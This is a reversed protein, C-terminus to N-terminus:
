AVRRKVTFRSRGNALVGRARNTVEGAIVQGYMKEYLERFVNSGGLKDLAKMRNIRNEDKINRNDAKNARGKIDTMISKFDKSKRADIKSIKIGQRRKENVYAELVTNYRRQGASTRGRRYLLKELELEQERLSVAAERASVDFERKTLDDRLKELLRETDRIAEVGPQHTRKGLKEVFKDYQRRSIRDGTEANIYGRATGTERRFGFAV